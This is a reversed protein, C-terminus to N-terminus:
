TKPTMELEIPSPEEDEGASETNLTEAPENAPTTTEERGELLEDYRRLWRELINSKQL